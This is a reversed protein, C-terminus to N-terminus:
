ATVAPAPLKVRDPMRPSAVATAIRGIIWASAVCAALAMALAPMGKLHFSAFLKVIGPHSAYLPYSIAGLSGCWAPAKAEARILLVILLPCFLIVTIADFTPTPGPTPLSAIAIWVTLLLEVSLAPLRAFVQAKHCRYILVGACFAPIGRLFGLLIDTQRWGVCWGYPSHYGFWTMLGWGAVVVSLLFLNSLRAFGPAYAINAAWEVTLSWAVTLVPYVADDATWFEPVLLFTLPITLLYLLRDGGPYAFLGAAALTAFLLVNLGLGIWYIPLLRRARAALFAKVGFGAKLRDEYTLAVVFGSLIFFM